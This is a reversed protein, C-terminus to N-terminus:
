GKGGAKAAARAERHWQDLEDEIEEELDDMRKRRPEGIEWCETCYTDPYDSGNDKTYTHLGCIDRGCIRCRGCAAGVKKGCIDCFYVTVNRWPSQAVAIKRHAM